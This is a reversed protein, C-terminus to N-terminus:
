QEGFVMQSTLTRSETEGSQEPAIVMWCVLKIQDEEIRPLPDPAEFPQLGLEEVKEVFQASKERATLDEDEYIERFERGYRKGTPAQISKIINELEDEM